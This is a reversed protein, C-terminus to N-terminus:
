SPDYGERTFQLRERINVKINKIAEYYKIYFFYYRPIRM